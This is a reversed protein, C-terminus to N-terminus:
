LPDVRLAMALAAPKLRGCNHQLSAQVEGFPCSGVNCSSNSEQGGSYLPWSHIIPVLKQAKDSVQPSGHVKWKGEHQFHYHSVVHNIPDQLVAMLKVWPMVCLIADPIRDSWVLYRLSDHISYLPQTTSFVLSLYKVQV